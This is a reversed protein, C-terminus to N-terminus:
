KVPTLQHAVTLVGPAAALAGLPVGDKFVTATQAQSTPNFVLVTWTKNSANFYVRSLPLNMRCNWQIAGLTRNAHTQFYTLGPTDNDHAIPDKKDWLEDMLKAAGDPDCQQQYGLVVNGLAPGMPQIGEKHTHEAQAALMTDFSKRAWAPDRTLYALAPSMPLWQIAYVWAPDGSFYTGFMQGGSWVMGVIPKKYSESFNDGHINFWYEMVARTEMAYGMAGTAAMDKDGLAEGLWFLGAWSAVAESSSEQNNGTPSSFGGAWSHGEWVDFTRLFPFEEDRQWNAYDRAVLKAMPGYDKLFQPDVMGLLAASTTFYGYHFHHDNFAESGYSPNFGVLAKWRAYRAFYHAKEGPTYTFWDTLAVRLNDRLKTFSPDRLERAIMMYQAMQLLSKGGWYTDDGYKDKTAYRALYDRMRAEDYDHPLGTKAPASLTPVLGGFAFDIRFDSGPACKMTGRPTRFQLNDFKLDNTTDRWHHPLFGQILRKETGKLAETTLHWATAVQGKEPQYSWSLKSDRPIAFAYPYFAALDKAAPLLCITLYTKPGAFEVVVKGNDLRFRTADPAFIGYSRGGYTIGIADGTQPLTLTAGNRDFFTAGNGLQLVPPVGHTELWLYPLGRGLTVDWYRSDSEAMRFTLTWDGWSKARADAPKFDAGRIGIPSDSVPDRGEGAWKVPYCLELGQENAKVQHPFAWLQGAYKDVLLNTWWQNTPMARKEDLTYLPRTLTKLVDKSPNPPASAFSGKGLPVVVAEDAATGAVFSCAALLIPIAPKMTHGLRSVGRNQVFNCTKRSNERFKRNKPFIKPILAVETVPAPELLM